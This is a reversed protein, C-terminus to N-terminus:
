SSLTTNQDGKRVTFPKDSKEYKTLIYKIFSPIWVNLTYM